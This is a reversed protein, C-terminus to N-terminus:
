SSRKRFLRSIDAAVIATICNIRTLCGPSLPISHHLTFDYRALFHLLHEFAGLDANFSVSCDWNYVFIAMLSFKILSM